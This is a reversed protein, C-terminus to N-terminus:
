FSVKLSLGINRTTPYVTAAIGQGNDSTTNSEPDINPTKKYLTFLNRAILSLSLRSFPTRTIWKQPASYGFSIERLKIFSADYV